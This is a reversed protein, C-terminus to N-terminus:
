PAAERSISHSLWQNLHKAGSLEKSSLFILVDAVSKEVDPMGYGTDRM